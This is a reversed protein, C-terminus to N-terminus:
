PALVEGNKIVKILNQHAPHVFIRFVKSFGGGGIQKQSTYPLIHDKELTRHFPGKRFRYAVYKWQIGEFLAAAGPALSDLKSRTLPLASDTVDHEIFAIFSHEVNLELCIAFIRPAEDIVIEATKPVKHGPIKFAPEKLVTELIESTFIKALVGEPVFAKLGPDSIPIVLKQLQAKLSTLAM